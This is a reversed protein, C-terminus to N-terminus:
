PKTGGLPELHHNWATATAPAAPMMQRATRWGATRRRLQGPQRRWTDEILALNPEGEILVLEAPLESLFVRPVQSPTLKKGPVNERVDDWNPNKKPLKKFAKPLKDVASWPGSLQKAMLWSEGHRLYHTKTTGSTYVFLDWNTNVAFELKSKEEVPSWIPKGDLLVLVSPAFATFIVPPEAKIEAERVDQVHTREVNTLFRDLEGVLDHKPLIGEIGAMLKKSKEDDLTPFRGDKLKVDSIRVQRSELDIDTKATIEIAGLLPTEEGSPAFAVAIRATLRSADEWTEIQPQYLVLKGADEVIERPWQPDSWDIESTAQSATDDPAAPEDQALVLFATAFLLSTCAFAIARKTM